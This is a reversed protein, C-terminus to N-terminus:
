QDQNCGLNTFKRNQSWEQYDPLSSIMEQLKNSGSELDRVTYYSLIDGLGDLNKNKRNLYSLFYRNQKIEKLIAKIENIAPSDVDYLKQDGKWIEADYSIIYYYYFVKLATQYDKNTILFWFIDEDLVFGEDDFINSFRGFISSKVGFNADSLRLLGRVCASALPYLDNSFVDKVRMCKFFYEEDFKISQTSAKIDINLNGNIPLNMDNSSEPYNSCSRQFEYSSILFDRKTQTDLYTRACLMEHKDLTYALKCSDMKITVEKSKASISLLLFVTLLIVNKVM